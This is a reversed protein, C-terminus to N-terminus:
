GTEIRSSAGLRAGTLKLKVIDDPVGVAARLDSRLAIVERLLRELLRRNRYREEIKGAIAYVYSRHCGAERAIQNPPVGEILLERIRDAKGEDVFM